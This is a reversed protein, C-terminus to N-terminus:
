KFRKGPFAASRSWNILNKVIAAYRREDVVEHKFEGGYTQLLLNIREGHPTSLFGPDHSCGLIVRMRLTYVVVERLNRDQPMLNAAVTPVDDAIRLAAASVAEPVGEPFFEFLEGTLFNVVQGSCTGRSPSRCAM